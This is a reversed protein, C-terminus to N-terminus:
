LGYEEYLHKQPAFEGFYEKESELRCKIAHEKEKFRGLKKNKGSVTIQAVWKNNEKDWSVGIIGSTNNKSMGKNRNNEIISCVRLNIKRNDLKNRNIHDINSDKMILQHMKIKRRKDNERKNNNTSLYGNENIVWYYEKILDYDELDFYFEKENKLYGVGCEGIFEYKNSKKREKSAENRACGCSKTHGSSLNKSSISKINGCECKCIYYIVIEIKENKLHKEYDEKYKEYDIGTVMLKGFNKGTLNKRPKPKCM